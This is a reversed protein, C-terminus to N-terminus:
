IPCQGWELESCKRACGTTRGSNRKAANAIALTTTTGGGIVTFPGDALDSIFSNSGNWNAADAIAALLEEQTGSIISENYTSNDFESEVGSGAGVAVAHIGETLGPPLDSQNSADSGIQFEASNTQVAFIFTPVAVTGQYAIVQDGSTSLLFSGSESSFDGSVGTFEIVTGATLANPATYELIGENTRFSGDGLVGNDTFFIETGATIDTLLVFNFSDSDDSNVSIIAIDGAALTSAM